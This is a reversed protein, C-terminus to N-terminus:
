SMWGTAAPIFLAVRSFAGVAWVTAIGSPSSARRGQGSSHWCINPACGRYGPLPMSCPMLGMPPSPSTCIPNAWYGIQDETVRVVGPGRGAVRFRGRQLGAAILLAGIILLLVGIYPMLGRGFFTWGIGPGWLAAGLLAERWRAIQAKADARVFSM